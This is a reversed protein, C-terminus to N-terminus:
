DHAHVLDFDQALALAQAERAYARVEPELEAGGYASASLGTDTGSWPGERPASRLDLEGGGPFRELRDGPGRWAHVLVRVGARALADALSAAAVGLGGSHHPPWEWVHMLVRM